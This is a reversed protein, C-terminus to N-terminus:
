GPPGPHDGSKKIRIAVHIDGCHASLFGLLAYIFLSVGLMEM